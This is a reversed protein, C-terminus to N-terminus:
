GSPASKLANAAQQLDDMGNITAMGPMQISLPKERGAPVQFLAMMRPPARRRPALKMYLMLQREVWISRALGYVIVLGDCQVLTTEIHEQIEEAKAEPDDPQLATTVNNAYFVNRIALASDRDVTDADIFVLPSHGTPSPPSQDANQKRRLTRVITEKFDEVPVAQVTDLGLLQRQVETDVQSLDIDPSRWQLIPLNQRKALEYQHWGFGKPVDPPLKGALPGLLQVFLDSGALDASLAKAFETGALPYSVTPLVEVGAQRLYRSIEDRRRELDDTVEALLVKGISSAQVPRHRLGKLKGAIDRALDDIQLAYERDTPSPARMIALTRPRKSEDIYWFHYGRTDRLEVPREAQDSFPELEVIFLRGSGKELHTELFSRLETLCWESALYGASLVALFLESSKVQDPIHGQLAHNGRLNQNDFWISSADLRGLTRALALGLDHVLQSVWGRDAGPYPADDVHAYSVFVDHEMASGRDVM